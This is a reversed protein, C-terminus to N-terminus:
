ASFVLNKQWLKKDQQLFPGFDYRQFNKEELRELASPCWIVKIKNHAVDFAHVLLLDFTKHVFCEETKMCMKIYNPLFKYLLRFTAFCKWLEPFYNIVFKEKIQFHEWWFPDNPNIVASYSDEYLTM